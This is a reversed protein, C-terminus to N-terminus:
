GWNTFGNEAKEVSGLRRGNRIAHVRASYNHLTYM